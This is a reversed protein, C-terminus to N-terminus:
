AIQAFSTESPVQVLQEKILGVEKVTLCPRATTMKHLRHGMLRKVRRRNPASLMRLAQESTFFSEAWLGEARIVEHNECLIHVFTTPTDPCASTVCDGNILAKAPVFVEDAGFLLQVQAGEVLIRHNASVKLDHDPMGAGLAGKHITVPWLQPMDQMQAVSLKTQGVWLIRQFGNDKTRVRDETSLWDVPLLGSATEIMTGSCYCPVSNFFSYEIESGDTVDETSLVPYSAGPTLEVSSFYGLHQGAIEIRDLYGSGGDLTDIEAYAEDYIQGSAIVTGDPTTVVATQNADSGIEDDGPAADDGDFFNDDDTITVKIRDQTPDFSPSLDFAGTSSNFVLASAAYGYIVYTAM